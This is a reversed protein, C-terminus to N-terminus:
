AEYNFAARGTGYETAHCDITERARAVWELEALENDIGCGALHAIGNVVALVGTCGSKAPATAQLATFGARLFQGGSRRKSIARLAAFARV